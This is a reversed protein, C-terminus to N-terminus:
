QLEKTILDFVTKSDKFGHEGKIYLIKLNPQNNNILSVKKEKDGYVALIKPSIIKATEEAVNYPEKKRDLGIMDRFHIHFASTKAPTLLVVLKVKDQLGPPLKEYLFPIIEAGFSFGVLVIDKKDWDEFFRQITPVVDSALKQPSKAEFFYKLSNLAIFSYGNADNRQSLRIDFRVWGGDGTIHFIMPTSNDGNYHVIVPIKEKGYAAASLNIFTLVIGITIPILSIFKM